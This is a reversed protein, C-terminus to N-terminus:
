CEARIPRSQCRDLADFGHRMSSVVDCPTRPSPFVTRVQTCIADVPADGLFHPNEETAM